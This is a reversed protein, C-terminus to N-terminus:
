CGTPTSASGARQSLSSSHSSLSYSSKRAAVAGESLPPCRARPAVMCAVITHGASRWSVDDTIGHTHESSRPLPPHYYKYTTSGSYLSSGRPGIERVGAERYESRAGPATSGVGRGSWSEQERNVDRSCAGQQFCDLLWRMRTLYLKTHPWPRRLECAGLARCSYSTAITLTWDVMTCHRLERTSRMTVM